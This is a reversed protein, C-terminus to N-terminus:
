TRELINKAINKFTKMAENKTTTDLNPLEWLSYGTLQSSTVQQGFDKVEGIKLNSDKLSVLDVGLQGIQNIIESKIQKELKPILKSFNTTLVGAYTKFRQPIYGIFVPHGPLTYINSPALSFIVRWTKIWDYLTHGLTKIARLSFIDCAAPVIYYDSDLLIIKNLMGINPGSDYFVFDVNHKYALENVLTSLAAIGKYGKAKSQFCDGWLTPLEQEFEALRIDGPVLIMNNRMELPKIIRVPGSAEAIPKLASWITNGKTSDSSDLLEDVVSDEVFYSTLNGQPDSDVLMVKYGMVALASAINFTLTTKGVGGKHNFISIRVATHRTNYHQTM